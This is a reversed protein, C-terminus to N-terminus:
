SGSWAWDTDAPGCPRLQLRADPGAGPGGNVGLCLGGSRPNRLQYHNDQGPWIYWTQNDQTSGNCPFESVKTGAPKGGLDPLDMCLNDKTNRIVFLNAGGPGKDQVMQLNWMQNDAGGAQCHFENVPGNSAGNGLDPLDACLGTARNHLLVQSAGGFLRASAPALPGGSLANMAPSNATPAGGPGAPPGSGPRPKPKPAHHGASTSPSASAAASRSASPSHSGSPSPARGGPVADQPIDALAGQRDTSKGHSGSTMLLFPVSLLAVGGVAAALLTRRPNRQRATPPTTPPSTKGATAPTPPSTKGATAPTPPSTKGDTAPTPPSTKGDT